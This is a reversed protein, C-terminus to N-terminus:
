GRNSKAQADYVIKLWEIAGSTKWWNNYHDMVYHIAESEKGIGMYPPLEEPLPSRGTLFAPVHSNQQIAQQLIQSVRTTNGERQFGLLARTYIWGAFQDDSYQGILTRASDDEGQQLLLALLSYRVGQNDMPNLRLMDQLNLIAQNHDGSASHCEALGQRARMYPRTEVLEWFHGSNETFFNEGLVCEGAEVGKRYYQTAEELDEAKEEALMVFADACLPSIDLAQDAIKIRLQPDTEEWAQYMLSQAKQLDGRTQDSDLDGFCDTMSGERSRLGDLVRDEPQRILNKDDMYEETMINNYGFDQLPIQDSPIQYDFPLEGAPYSITMTYPGDHTYGEFDADVPQYDGEPDPILHAAVFSPVSRLLSEYVQMEARTPREITDRTYTILLPYAKEGAIEWGYKEIAELDDMPIPDADEFTISRWGGPPLQDLPDNAASFSHLLDDWDWYVLLGFELRAYGMLQVYITKKLEKMYVALPQADNLHDWPAARYFLAAADFLDAIMEPTVGEVTLLGPPSPDASYLMDEFNAVLGDIEKPTPQHSSSIGIENLIPALSNKLDEEEFLIEKPRHPEQPVLKAPECMTKTLFNQINEISAPQPSVDVGAIIQKELNVLLLVHPQAPSGDDLELWTHLRRAILFWSESEQPLDTISQSIKSTQHPM